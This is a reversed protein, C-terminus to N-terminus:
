GARAPGQDCPPGSDHPAVARLFTRGGHRVRVVRGDAILSDLLPPAAGAKELYIRAIGEPMPHVALIGLLDEGPDTTHAFEGPEDGTLLEVRPLRASLLRFATVVAGESPPRVHAEAPPRTPVALYAVAPKLPGIFRAVAEVTGPDDNLGLVLM